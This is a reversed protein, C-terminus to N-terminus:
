KPKKPPKNKKGGKNDKDDGDGNGGNADNQSADAAVGADAPPSADAAPTGADGPAGADAETPTPGPEVHDPDSTCGATSTTGLCRSTMRIPLSLTTHPMYRLMRREVMCAAPDATCTDPAMGHTATVVQIAVEADDAGAPVLVLSGIRGTTSDCRSTVTLPTSTTYDTATGASIATTVTGESACPVDTSVDVVVATADQCASVGFFSFLLGLRARSPLM